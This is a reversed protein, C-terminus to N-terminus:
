NRTHHMFGLCTVCNRILSNKEVCISQIKIMVSGTVQFLNCCAFSSIQFRDFDTHPMHSASWLERCRGLISRFYWSDSGTDISLRGKSRQFSFWEEWRDIKESFRQKSKVYNVLKRSTTKWQTKMSPRVAFLVALCLPPSLPFPYFSLILPFFLNTFDSTSSGHLPNPVAGVACYASSFNFTEFLEDIYCTFLLLFCFM